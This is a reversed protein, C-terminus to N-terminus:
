EAIQAQRRDTQGHKGREIQAELERVLCSRGPRPTQALGTEAKVISLAESHDAPLHEAWSRIVHDIRQKLELPGLASLTSEKFQALKFSQYVKRTEDALRNVLAANINNKFATNSM